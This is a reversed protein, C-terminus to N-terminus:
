LCNRFRLPWHLSKARSSKPKRGAPAKPDLGAAERARPWVIMQFSRATLRYGQNRCLSMADERKINPKERLIEALAQAAEGETTTTTSTQAEKERSNKDVGACLVEVVDSVWLEIMLPYQHVSSSRNLVRSHEWDLDDPCLERSAYFNPNITIGRVGRSSYHIPAFRAAVTSEAIARCLRTKAETESIGNTERVRELADALLEWDPTDAM